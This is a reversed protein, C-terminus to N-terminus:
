ADEHPWFGFDSGDGWHAGFYHDPPAFYALLDSMRECLDEAEGDWSHPGTVQEKWALVDTIRANLEALKLEDGDSTYLNRQQLEELASAFAEILDCTRLTGHSVSGPHAYKM